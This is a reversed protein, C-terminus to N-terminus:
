DKYKKLFDELRISRGNTLDDIGQEISAKDDETLEDWHDNTEEYFFEQLGAIVSEEKTNLIKEILSLKAAQINM